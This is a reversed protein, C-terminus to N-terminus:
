IFNQNQMINPQLAKAHEVFLVFLPTGEKAPPRQTIRARTRLARPQQQLKQRCPFSIESVTNGSSHAVKSACSSLVLLQTHANFGADSTLNTPLTVLRFVRIHAYVLFLTLVIQINWYIENILYRITVLGLIRSPVRYRLAYPM